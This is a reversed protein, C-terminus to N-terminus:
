GDVAINVGERNPPLYRYEGDPRLLHKSVTAATAVVAAAFLAPLVALM